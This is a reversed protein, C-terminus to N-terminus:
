CVMSQRYVLRVTAFATWFIESLIRLVGPGRLLFFILMYLIGISNLIGHLQDFASALRNSVNYTLYEAGAIFSISARCSM